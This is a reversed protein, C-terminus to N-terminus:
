NLSTVLVNVRESGIALTHYVAHLAVPSGVTVSAALEGHNWAWVTEATELLELAIWGGSAVTVVLADRWKSPTAAAVRRQLPSLSHGAGTHSCGEGRTHCRMVDQVGPKVSSM